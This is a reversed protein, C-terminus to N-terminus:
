ASQAAPAAALQAADFKVSVGLGPAAGGRLVAGLSKAVLADKRAM